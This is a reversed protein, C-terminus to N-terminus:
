TESSSSCTSCTGEHHFCAQVEDGPGSLGFGEGYGNGKCMGLVMEEPRGRTLIILKPKEWKPKNEIM